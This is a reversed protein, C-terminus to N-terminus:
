RVVRPGVLKVPAPAVGPRTAPIIAPMGTQASRPAIMIAGGRLLQGSARQTDIIMELTRGSFVIQGSQSAILGANPNEVIIVSHTRAPKAGKTDLGPKKGVSPPKHAADQARDVIRGYGEGGGTKGGGGKNGSGRKPAEEAAIKPTIIKMRHLLIFRYLQQVRIQAPTLSPYLRNTRDPNSYKINQDTQGNEFDEMLGAAAVISLLRGTLQDPSIKEGGMFEGIRLAIKEEPIVDLFLDSAPLIEDDHVPSPFPEGAADFGDPLWPEKSGTIAEGEITMYGRIKSLATSTCHIEVFNKIVGAHKAPNEGVAEEYVSRIASEYPGYGGEKRALLLIDIAVAHKLEPFAEAFEKMQRLLEPDLKKGDEELARSYLDSPVRTFEPLFYHLKLVPNEWATPGEDTKLSEIGVLRRQLAAGNEGLRQLVRTRIRQYIELIATEVDERKGDNVQDASFRKLASTLEYIEQWERSFEKRLEPQWLITIIPSLRPCVVLANVARIAENKDPGGFTAATIIERFARWIATSLIESLEHFPANEKIFVRPPVLVPHQTLIPFEISAFKKLIGKRNNKYHNELETQTQVWRDIVSPDDGSELIVKAALDAGMNALTLSEAKALGRNHSYKHLLCLAAVVRRLSAHRALAATAADVTIESSSSEKLWRGLYEPTVLDLEPLAADRTFLHRYAMVAMDQTEALIREAESASAAPSIGPTIIYLFFNYRWQSHYREPLTRLRADYVDTPLASFSRHLMFLTSLSATAAMRFKATRLRIDEYSDDNNRAYFVAGFGDFKRPDLAAGTGTRPDYVTLSKDLNPKSENSIGIATAGYGPETRPYLEIESKTGTRSLQARAVALSNRRETAVVRSDFVPLGFDALLSNGSTPTVPIAPALLDVRALTPPPLPASVPAPGGPAAADPKIVARMIPVRHIVAFRYMEQIKVQVPSLTPYLEHPRDATGGFELLRAKFLANFRELLDASALIGELKSTLADTGFNIISFHATDPSRLLAKLRLTIKNEPIADALLDATPLIEDDSVEPNFPESRGEVKPLWSEKEGTLAEGHERMFARISTRATHESHIDAFNALSAKRYEEDTKAKAADFNRYFNKIKEGAEGYEGKQLMSIDIVVAGILEPFIEVVPKMREFDPRTWSPDSGEIPLKLLAECVIMSEPSFIIEPLVGLLQEMPDEWKQPTGLEPHATGTLERALAGSNRGLAELIAPRAETYIQELRAHFSNLTKASMSNPARLDAWIKEFAPRVSQPLLDRIKDQYLIAVLGALEPVIRMLTRASSSTSLADGDKGDMIMRYIAHPGVLGLEPFMTALEKDPTALLIKADAPQLEDKGPSNFSRWVAVAIDQTEALTLTEATRSPARMIPGVLRSTFINFKETIGAKELPKIIPDDLGSATISGFTRFFQFLEALGQDSSIRYLVDNGRVMDFLLKPPQIGGFGVGLAVKRPDFQAVKRNRFDYISRSTPTHEKLDTGLLGLAPGRAVSGDEPVLLVSVPFEPHEIMARNLAHFMRRESQLVREPLAAAGLRSVPVVPNKEVPTKVASAAPKKAELYKEYVELVEDRLLVLLKYNAQVNIEHLSLDPSFLDHLPSRRSPDEKEHVLAEGIAVFRGATAKAVGIKKLLKLICIDAQDELEQESLVGFAALRRKIARESIKEELLDRTPIFEPTEDAEAALVRGQIGTLLDFRTFRADFKLGLTELLDDAETGSTPRENLYTRLALLYKPDTHFSVFEELFARRRETGLFPQKPGFYRFILDQFSEAIGAYEPRGQCWLAVLEDILYAGALEPSANAYGLAAEIRVKQSNAEWRDKAGELAGILRKPLEPNILFLEPVAQRQRELPGNPLPVEGKEWPKDVGTLARALTLGPSVDESLVRIIAPRMRAYIDFVARRKLEQTKTTVSGDDFVSSLTRYVGPETRAVVKPHALLLIMPLIDPNSFALAMFLGSIAESKSPRSSDVELALLKKWFALTHVPSIRGLEPFEAEVKADIGSLRPSGTNKAESLPPSSALLRDRMQAYRAVIKPGIKALWRNYDDRTTDGDVRLTGLVENTFALHEKSTTLALGNESGLLFLISFIRHLALNTRMAERFNIRGAADQAIVKLIEGKDPGLWKQLNKEPERDLEPLAALGLHENMWLEMATDQAEHLTYPQPAGVPTLWIPMLLRGVDELIARQRLVWGLNMLTPDTFIRQEVIGALANVQSDKADFSVESKVSGGSLLFPGALRFSVVTRSAPNFVPITTDPGIEGVPPPAVMLGIITATHESSVNISGSFRPLPAYTSWVGQVLHERTGYSLGFPHFPEHATALQTPKIFWIATRDKFHASLEARNLLAWARIVEATSLNKPSRALTALLDMFLPRTARTESLNKQALLSLIEMEHSGGTPLAELASILRKAASSDPAERPLAVRVGIMGKGIQVTNGFIDRITLDAMRGKAKWQSIQSVEPLSVLYSNEGVVLIRANTITSLESRVQTTFSKESRDETFTFKEGSEGFPVEDLAHKPAGPGTFNVVDLRSELNEIEKSFLENQSELTKIKKGADSVEAAAMRIAADFEDLVVRWEPPADRRRAIETEINKREESLYADSKKTDKLNDLTRRAKRIEEIHATFSKRASDIKPKHATLDAFKVVADKPFKGMVDKYEESAAGLERASVKNLEAAADTIEKTAAAFAGVRKIDDLGKLHARIKDARARLSQIRDETETEVAKIKERARDGSKEHSNDGLDMLELALGDIAAPIPLLGTQIQTQYGLFIRLGQEAAALATNSAERDMQSVDAEVMYTASHTSILRHLDKVKKLLAAIQEKLAAKKQTLETHRNKLKEDYLRRAADVPSALAKEGLMECIISHRSYAKAMEEQSAFGTRGFLDRWFEDSSAPAYTADKEMGSLKTHVDDVTLHLSEHADVLFSAIIRTAMSTVRAEIKKHPAFREGIVESAIVELSTAIALAFRQTAFTQATAVLGEMTIFAPREDTSEFPTRTYTRAAFAAIGASSDTILSGFESIMAAQARIFALLCAAEAAANGVKSPILDIEQSVSDMDISSADRAVFHAMRFYASRIRRKDIALGSHEKEWKDIFTDIRARALGHTHSSIPKPPAAPGFGANYNAILRLLESFVPDFDVKAGDSYKSITFRTIDAILGEDELLARETGPFLKTYFGLALHALQEVMPLSSAPRITNTYRNAVGVSKFFDNIIDSIKGIDAEAIGAEALTEKLREEDFRSYFLVSAFYQWLTAVTKTIDGAPMGREAAFDPFQAQWPRGPLFPGMIRKHRPIRRVIGKLRDEAGAKAIYGELQILNEITRTLEEETGTWWDKVAAFIAGARTSQPDALKGEYVARGILVRLRIVADMIGPAWGNKIAADAVDDIFVIATGDTLPMSSTGPLRAAVLFPIKTGSDVLPMEGRPQMYVLVQQAFKRIEKFHADMEDIQSQSRNPRLEALENEYPLNERRLVATRGILEDLSAGDPPRYLTLPYLAELNKLGQLYLDIENLAETYKGIEVEIIVSPHSPAGPKRSPKYTGSAFHAGSPMLVARYRSPHEIPATSMRGGMQDFIFPFIEGIAFLWLMFNIYDYFDRKQEPTQKSEDCIPLYNRLDWYPPRTVKGIAHSEITSDNTFRKFRELQFSRAFIALGKNLFLVDKMFRPELFEVTINESDPSKEIARAVVRRIPLLAASIFDFPDLNHGFRWAWDNLAFFAGAFSDYADNHRPETLVDEPMGRAIADAVIIQWNAEGFNFEEAPPHTRALERLEDHPNKSSLAERILRTWCDEPSEHAAAAKALFQEDSPVYGALLTRLNDRPQLDDHDQALAFAFLGDKGKARGEAEARVMDAEWQEPSTDEPRFHLLLDRLTGKIRATEILNLWADIPVDSINKLLNKWAPFTIKSPRDQFEGWRRVRRLPYGMVRSDFFAELEAGTGGLKVLKAILGEMGGDHAPDYPVRLGMAAPGFQRPPKLESVQPLKDASEPTEGTNELIRTWFFRRVMQLVPETFKDAVRSRAFTAHALEAELGGTKLDALAFNPNVNRASRLYSLFFQSFLFYLSEREARSLRATGSLVGHLIDQGFQVFDGYLDDGIIKIIEHQTLIQQSEMATAHGPKEALKLTNSAKRLHNERSHRVFAGTIQNVATQFEKKADESKIGRLDYSITARLETHSLMVHPPTNENNEKLWVSVYKRLAEILKERTIEAPLPPTKKGRKELWADVEKPVAESYADIREPPQNATAVMLIARAEERLAKIEDAEGRKKDVDASDLFALAAAIESENRGLSELDAALELTRSIIATIREPNEKTTRLTSELEGLELAMSRAALIARAYNRFDATSVGSSSGGAPARGKRPARKGAAGNAPPQSGGFPKASDAPSPGPPPPTPASGSSYSSGSTGSPAGSAAGPLAGDAEHAGANGPLEPAGGLAGSGPKGPGTPNLPSTM